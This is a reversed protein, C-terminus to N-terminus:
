SAALLLAVLLSLSASLSCASSCKKIAVEEPHYNICKNPRRRYLDHENPSQCTQPTADDAVIEQPDISLHKNGCPCLTDVVLLILNSRPIKQVSFPRECGTVHCNTLKGKLPNSNNLRAPQLIYLDVRKNCPRARQTRNPPPRSTALPPSAMAPPQPVDPYSMGPEKDENSYTKGSNEDFNNSSSSGGGTIEDDPIEAYDPYFEGYTNGDNTDEQAATFHPEWLPTLHFQMSLWMLHGFLWRAFWAIPQWPMSCSYAGRNLNSKTDVCAGQHDMISIKKYIGDQVLSDMITGDAQGFFMGTQEAKESLIIFGNNDLVYCDLDASACTKKCGTKVTCASTVNIFHSALASHQFQIGIVAAPARHGKHEVFVAHTATVLTKESNGANFPVSFVFSEPEISHQDVARKYWVEDVARRNSDSFFPDSQMGGQGQWRLLGSRTAIFTQAVGFMQYGQQKDEKLTSASPRELVETVIADFVLSQMLTKDCYYSDKEMKKTNSNGLDQPSRPRLSMWKWGPKRTRSLFHLVQEEPSKFNHENPYNYECYVWDPHVRWNDGKFYETVNVHSLKIEQEGLVQYMGYGDPLALGLSFPTGEIPHYFYKHRRTTVRRMEDYHIKVKLETEGEKQDIMDHRMDMLLTNNDRLNVDSDVLEVSSLDVNNYNPKLTEVFLDKNLLPRLDPHYLVHGNNNVIFSYGNVGLKYAPVLKQLQQIPIDTGVVGLLSADSVSYNRRDFIPTAVSTMLQGEEVSNSLLTNIKGGAYVPTWQIPHDNQYMVMPRALVKIYNFVKERVDKVEQIHEYFGKNSCAMSKMEASNSTDKGVLYTFVRVPMHPMNYQKFIEKISNAPGTSVLMIAQNCQCGLNTRNYKHLIEFGTVFASTFNAVNDSKVHPLMKKLERKNGETAQVLMDKFCTVLETTSESFTYVNVFDNDTLTDLIASVTERALDRHKGYMASSVDLLIAVDKPSTAAGVFWSSTRFDHLDQRIAVEDTPWKMGPFRRLFGTSSGFFQWSLTPDMEYNNVFVPDLHESWRLANVVHSETDSLSEPLLVTSFSTNVAQHDFHRNPVLFIDQGGGSQGDEVIKRSNFYRANGGEAKQSLAAQEASDMIRMVANMKIDIMNKVEAALERILILGDKRAVEADLDHFKRQIENMKTFQRGFEWMEQGFKLAWNKVEHHPIDEDQQLSAPLLALTALVLALLSPAARPRLCSSTM